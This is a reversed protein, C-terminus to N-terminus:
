KLVLSSAVYMYRSVHERDAQAVGEELTDALLQLDSLSKEQLGADAAVEELRSTPPAFRLYSRLFRSSIVFLTRKVASINSSFQSKSRQTPSAESPRGFQQPTTVPILQLATRRDEM